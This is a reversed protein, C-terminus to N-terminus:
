VGNGPGNRDRRKDIKWIGMNNKMKDFYFGAAQAIRISAGNNMKIVAYLTRNPEKAIAARLMAVGYGKGRHEPAITWSLDASDNLYDFRITGVSESNHEAIFIKREPSNLANTLWKIHEPWEVMDTNVFNNRTVFDNRWEFLLQSDTLNARRLSIEM